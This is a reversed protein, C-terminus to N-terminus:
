INSSNWFYIHPMPPVKKKLGLWGYNLFFLVGMDELFVGGGRGMSIIFGIFGGGMFKFYNM